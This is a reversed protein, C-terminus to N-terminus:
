EYRLAEAPQVQAARWSPYLTALFSLILAASCILAVDLWQLDSPLSSIFDSAKKNRRGRRVMRDGLIDQESIVAFDDTEFGEELGEVVVVVYLADIDPQGALVFM